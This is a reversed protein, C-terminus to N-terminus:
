PECLLRIESRGLIVQMRTDLATSGPWGGTQRYSLIYCVRCKSSVVESSEEVTLEHLLEAVRRGCDNM